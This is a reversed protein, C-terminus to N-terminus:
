GKLQAELAKAETVPLQCVFNRCVYATAYGDLLRIFFGAKCAATTQGPPFRRIPLAGVACPLM